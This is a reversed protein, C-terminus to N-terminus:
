HSYVKFFNFQFKKVLGIKKTAISSVRTTKIIQGLWEVVM